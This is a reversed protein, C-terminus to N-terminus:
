ENSAEKQEKELEKHILQATWGQFTMGKSKAIQKAKAKEEASIDVLIYTRTDSNTQMMRKNNYRNTQKTM